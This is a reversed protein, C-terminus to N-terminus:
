LSDIADRMWRSYTVRFDRQEDADPEHGLEETLWDWDAAMPETPLLCTGDADFPRLGAAKIAEKAALTALSEATPTTKTTQTTTMDHGETTTPEM